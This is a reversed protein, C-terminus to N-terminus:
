NKNLNNLILNIKEDQKKLLEKMEELQKRLDANETELEIERKTKRQIFTDINNNDYKNNIRSILSNNAMVDIADAVKEMIANNNIPKNRINGSYVKLGLDNEVLTLKDKHQKSFLEDPNIKTSRAEDLYFKWEGPVLNLPNHGSLDTRRTGEPGLYDKVPDELIILTYRGDFEHHSYIRKVFEVNNTLFITRYGAKIPSQYYKCNLTLEEGSLLAKFMEHEETKMFTFDDLILLKMTKLKQTAQEKSFTNRFYAYYNENNVLSKALVTKGTNVPGLIILAKSRIEESKFYKNIHENINIHVPNDSNKIHEPVVWEFEPLEEQCHANIAKEINSYNSLVYGPFRVFLWSKLDDPSKNSNAVITAPVDPVETANGEKDNKYIIKFINEISGYFAIDGDKQCYLKLNASNKAKQMMMLYKLGNYEFKIGYFTRKIKKTFSLCVQYHCKNTKPSYEHGVLIQKIFEQGIKLDNVFYKNIVILIEAKNLNFDINLNENFNDSYHVPDLYVVIGLGTTNFAFDTFDVSFLDKNVEPEVRDTARFFNINYKDSNLDTVVLYKDLDKNIISRPKLLETKVEKAEKKKRQKPPAMNAAALAELLPEEMKEEEKKMRKYNDFLKDNNEQWKENPLLSENLSLDMPINDNYDLDFIQDTLSRFGQESKIALDFNNNNGTFSM